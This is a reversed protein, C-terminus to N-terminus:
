DNNNENALQEMRLRFYFQIFEKENVDETTNVLENIIPICNQVNYYQLLTDIVKSIANKVEIPLEAFLEVM